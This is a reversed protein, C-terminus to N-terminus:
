QTNNEPDNEQLSRALKAQLELVKLAAALHAAQALQKDAELQAMHQHLHEPLTRTNWHAFVDEKLLDVDFLVLVACELCEILHEGTLDNQTYTVVNGGCFPCPKLNHM